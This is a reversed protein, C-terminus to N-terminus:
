LRLQVLRHSCQELKGITAPFYSQNAVEPRALRCKDLRKALPFSYSLIHGTGRKGEHIFVNKPIFVLLLLEDVVEVKVPQTAKVFRQVNAYLVVQVVFM